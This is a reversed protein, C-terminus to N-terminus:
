ENHIEVKIKEAKAPFISNKIMQIDFPSIERTFLLALLFVISIMIASVIVHLHVIPLFSFTLYVVFTVCILRPITISFILSRLDQWIYITCILLGIFGSITTAMAAGVIGYKPILLFNLFIDAFVLSFLVFFCTGMLNRAIMVTNMVAMLTILSLGGMLIIIVDSAESFDPGFFLIMVKESNNVVILWTLLLFISLYRFTVKVIKKVKENDKLHISRSLSPLLAASIAISLYYPVKSLISAAFYYGVFKGSIYYKVFWLDVNLLLYLALFYFVNNVIFKLYPIKGPDRSAEPIRTIILGVILCELNSMRAIYSSLGM